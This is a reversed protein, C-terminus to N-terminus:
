LIYIFFSFIAARKINETMTRKAAPAETAKAARVNVPVLMLPSEFLTMSAVPVTEIPADEAVPIVIPLDPMVAIKGPVTVIVPVVVVNCFRTTLPLQVPHPTPLKM